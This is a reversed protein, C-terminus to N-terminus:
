STERNEGLTSDCVNEVGIGAGEGEGVTRVKVAPAVDCAGIPM